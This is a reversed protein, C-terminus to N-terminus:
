RSRGKKGMRDIEKLLAYENLSPLVGQLAARDGETLTITVYGRDKDAVAAARIREIAAIGEQLRDRRKVTRDWELMAGLEQRAGALAKTHSKPVYVYIAPRILWAIFDEVYEPTIAPEDDSM